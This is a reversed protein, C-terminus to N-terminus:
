ILFSINKIKGRNLADSVRRVEGGRPHDAGGPGGEFLIRQEDGDQRAVGRQGGSQRVDDGPLQALGIAPGHGEVRVGHDGTYQEHSPGEKVTVPWRVAVEHGVDLQLLDVSPLTRRVDVHLAVL